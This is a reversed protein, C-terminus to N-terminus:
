SQVFVMTRKILSSFILPLLLELPLLLDVFLTKLLMGLTQSPPTHIHYQFTAKMLLCHQTSRGTSDYTSMKIIIKFGAKELKKTQIKTTMMKVDSKNYTKGVEEELSKAIQKMDTDSCTPLRGKGTFEESIVIGIAHNALLCYISAQCLSVNYQKQIALVAEVRAACNHGVPVKSM